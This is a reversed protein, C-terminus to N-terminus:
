PRLHILQTHIEISFFRKFSEFSHVAPWQKSDHSIRRMAATFIPRYYDRIFPRIEALKAFNKIFVTANEAVRELDVKDLIAVLDDQGEALTRLWTLLPQRPRIQILQHGYDLEPEMLVLHSHFELKFCCLFDLFSREIEHRAEKGLWRCIEHRFMATYHCEIEELTQDDTARKPIVYATNDVSLYKLSPARGEPLQSLLFAYFVRTPRLIVLESLQADM